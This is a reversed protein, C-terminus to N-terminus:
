QSEVLPTIKRKSASQKTIACLKMLATEGFPTLSWYKGTDSPAHKRESKKILGLALLQIKITEFADNSLQVAKIGTEPFLERDYLWLEENLRNRMQTESAEEIMLPGLEYFIQDWTIEVVVTGSKPDPYGM